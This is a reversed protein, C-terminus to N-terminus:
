ATGLKALLEPGRRSLHGAALRGLGWALLGGLVAGAPTALWLLPASDRVTGLVLLTLVPSTLVVLGLLALWVLGSIGGGDSGPNSGRRHPDAMRIPMRVSMLVLLGAGAGLVVPLLGTAWAALRAEGHWAVGAVTLLVAPPTVVLLWALQRGRIDARVSGPLMLTQWLATGDSSHLHASSGVALAVAFVGTLPLYDTVDILLPLLAYTVAYVLCFALFHIRVLDRSWTRVEKGVVAGLATAPRWSGDRRGRVVARAVPRRLLVAWLTLAAAAVAALGAVTAAVLGWDGRDAAEVAVVPWGSPAARLVAAVPAPLAAGPGGAVAAM